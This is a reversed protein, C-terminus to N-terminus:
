RQPRKVRLAKGNWVVEADATTHEAVSEGAAIWKIRVSRSKPMGAYGKGERAGLTVTGTADDYRVPMRSWAGTKYRESRGDDNYLSFAGDAGTYIVLTVPADPKEDTYQMVPGMPVISGARVFLPMREAPAPVTASAGGKYTKGSEFDYWTVDKGPFYVERERAKWATVPAVLFAKGFLYEDNITRAKADEPFDMVLGRMISGDKMYTDAGLTYIYPMLRYRLKDYWVMSARMPSGEPSIEYIERWPKEGHSRFIPSFAGFQFWRLNLERWEALDQPEPHDATYRPEVSFGGIDHTWNPLGSMATNVGASIQARLDYWRTAVDGSWVAASYRQLGGFGSRTLLFPRVDPKFARWGDYFSRANMLPYSNFFEAAPGIATPGMTDIRKAISLNSHMDPESADAWWADFGLVGLRDQIQRWFIKRGKASYPDYFTNLYGPGVWDKNGQELNGHYVAGAADLEKYNDTTPYFKPWVSIMIEAHDEHVKDVMAKPDPFRSADFKHSGWSDDTWYRWDLVINDIPYQLKRYESLVDLLEKSTDYRQRSQWFGYVWKPMMEAKGTLKRYGAIVGDMDKGPVFWYDKDRAVDSSFWVSHRDAKPLPDNHLLAIYGANPEWEIRIHVPKGATMPLEFNAYWPNWNQRWRDLVLKGDAYVKYYSSGYLEFKHVGTKDPHVDGNWVVTQTQVANGATNQGESAAVTKAKAAEPWKAQDAIYQYDVSAEQRAVALKGDLFYEAKFGPKGDSTVKMGGEAGVLAYPKPNGFRTISENDWLLGYGKTSVVFPLGIDMNHQALQVDEGNYDMQANQHQGLGYLGEGTGRNFQQSVTVYPKGDAQTQTFVTPASEALLEKGRPDLFRVKGSALDIDATAKAAKVTVHGGRESVTYAGAAPPNPAMLSANPAPVELGRPHATVHFIGDGHLTVEVRDAPGGEPTVVVGGPVKEVHAEAAIAPASCLASGALLVAIRIHKM